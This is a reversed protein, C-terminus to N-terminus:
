YIHKKFEVLYNELNIKCERAIQILEENDACQVRTLDAMAMMSVNFSATGFYDILDHRLKDYDIEKYYEM